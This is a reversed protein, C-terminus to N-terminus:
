QTFMKEVKERTSSGVGLKLINYLIQGGLQATRLGRFKRMRRPHQQLVQAQRLPVNEFEAPVALMDRRRPGCAIPRLLWGRRIGCRPVFADLLEPSVQFRHLM